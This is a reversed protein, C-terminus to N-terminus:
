NHKTLIKELYKEVEMQTKIPNSLEIVLRNSFYRSPFNKLYDMESLNKLKHNDHRTEGNTKDIHSENRICSLHNMGIPYEDILKGVKLFRQENLLRDNELHAFDLCIGAYKKIENGDFGGYVNEIYIMKRFESYSYKLPFEATAHINFVKTRYKKILYKIESPKMDSRLHVTPISKIKSKDLLKYLDMREKELLGTPFLAIERIRFKDADKIMQKWDADRTTTITVFIKRNKFFDGPM